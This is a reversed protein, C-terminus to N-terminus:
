ARCSGINRHPYQHTAQDIMREFASSDPPPVLIFATQITGNEDKYLRRNVKVKGDAIVENDTLGAPIIINGGLLQLEPLTYDELAEYTAKAEQNFKEM